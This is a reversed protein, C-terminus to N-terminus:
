LSNILEEKTNFIKNEYFYISAPLHESIYFDIKYSISFIVGKRKHKSEMIRKSMIDGSYVKGDYIFYVKDELNYKCKKLNEM